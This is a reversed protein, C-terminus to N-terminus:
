PSLSCDTSADYVRRVEMAPKRSKESLRFGTKNL